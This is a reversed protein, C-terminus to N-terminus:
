TEADGRTLQVQAALFARGAEATPPTSDSLFGVRFALRVSDLDQLLTQYHGAHAALCAAHAVAVGPLAMLREFEQRTQRMMPLIEPADVTNWNREAWYAIGIERDMHNPLGRARKLMFEELSRLSYHNLWALPPGSLAGYLSIASDNAAFGESLRRGDPGIWAAAHRQRARPRHIGPQRFADPRHLTKFLHALPFHLDFPAARTFREPTLGAGRRKQSGSGFLRWPLALADFHGAHREYTLLMDHLSPFQGCIFEDCDFFLAWDASKYSNHDRLHRLAQWQVSKGGRPTFDVHAIRPDQTLIQLLEASGDTCDHSFVLMRDFGLALHHALWEVIYPGDDRLCTIGLIDM